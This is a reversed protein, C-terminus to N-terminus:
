PREILEESALTRLAARAARRPARLLTALLAADGTPIQALHREAESTRPAARRARVAARRGALRPAAAKCAAARAAALAHRPARRLRALRARRVPRTTSRTPSRRWCAACTRSRSSPGTAAGASWTPACAPGSWRTRTPTSTPSPACCCSWRAASSGGADVLERLRAALFRAEAVRDPASRTTATSRQIELEVRGGM